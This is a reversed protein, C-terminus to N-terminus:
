YSLPGIFFMEQHWFQENTKEIIGSVIIKIRTKIRRNKIRTITEVQDVQLDVTVKSLRQENNKISELVSKKVDEKFFQPNYINEFDNNWIECGFMPDHKVENYATIVILHVMNQISKKIDIRHLEKKQTINKFKIPLDLFTLLM